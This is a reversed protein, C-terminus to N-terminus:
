DNNTINICLLAAYFSCKRSGKKRFVKKKKKRTL